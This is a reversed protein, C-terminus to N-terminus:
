DMQEETEGDASSFYFRKSITPRATKLYRFAGFNALKGVKKAIFKVVYSIFLNLLNLLLMKLSNPFLNIGCLFWSTHM